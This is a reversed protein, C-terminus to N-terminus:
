LFLFSASIFVTARAVSTSRRQVIVELLRNWKWGQIFAFECGGRSVNGTRVFLRLPIRTFYFSRLIEQKEVAIEILFLISFVLQGNRSTDSSELKGQVGRLSKTLDFAGFCNPTWLTQLVVVHLQFVLLSVRKSFCCM